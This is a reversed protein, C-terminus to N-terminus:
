LEFLPSASDISTSSGKGHRSKSFYVFNDSFIAGITWRSMSSGTLSSNSMRSCRYVAILVAPHAIKSTLALLKKERFWRHRSTSRPLYPLTSSATERLLPFLQKCDVNSSCLANDRLRDFGVSLLHPSSLTM